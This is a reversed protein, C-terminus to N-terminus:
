AGGSTSTSDSEVVRLLRNSYMQIQSGVAIKPAISAVGASKREMSIAKAKASGQKRTPTAHPESRELFDRHINVIAKDIREPRNAAIVHFEIPGIYLTIAINKVITFM